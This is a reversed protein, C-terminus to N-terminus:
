TSKIYAHLAFLNNLTSFSFFCQMAQFYRWILSLIHRDFLSIFNFEIRFHANINVEQQILLDVQLMNLYILQLKIEIKSIYINLM